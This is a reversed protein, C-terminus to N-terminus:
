KYIECMCNLAMFSNNIKIYKRKDFSFNHVLLREAVTNSAICAFYDSSPPAKAFSGDINLTGNSLVRYTGIFGEDGVNNNLRVSGNTSTLFNTGIKWRIKPM